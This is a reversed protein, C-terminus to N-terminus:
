KLKTLFEIEEGTPDGCNLGKFKKNSPNFNLNKSNLIKFYKKFLKKCIKCINESIFNKEEFFETHYKFDTFEKYVTLIKLNLEKYVIKIELIIDQIEKEVFFKFYKEKGTIKKNLLNWDSLRDIVRTLLTNYYLHLPLVIVRQELYVVLSEKIRM